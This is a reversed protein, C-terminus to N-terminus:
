GMVALARHRRGRLHPRTVVGIPHRLRRERPESTELQGGAVLEGGGALDLTALSLKPPIPLATTIAVNTIRAIRTSSNRVNRLLSM